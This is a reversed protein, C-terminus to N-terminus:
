KQEKLAADWDAILQPVEVNRPDRATDLLSCCWAYAFGLAENQKRKADAVEARLRENEREAHGLAGELVVIRNAAENCLPDREASVGDQSLRLPVGSDFAFRLRKVLKSM